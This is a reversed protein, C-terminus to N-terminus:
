GRNQGSTARTRTGQDFLETIFYGIYVGFLGELVALLTKFQDFNQFALNLAKSVIMAFVCFVFISPLSFALFAFEVSVNRQSEPSHRHKIIYRVIATTYSAFMPVVLALTTTMEEFLFGRAFFLGVVLIIAAFHSVVIFLGLAKRIRGEVMM